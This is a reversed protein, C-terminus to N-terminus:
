VLRGLPVNVYHTGALTLGPLSKFWAALASAVVVVVLAPSLLKLKALPTYKWGYLLALSLAAILTAGTHMQSAIDGLGGTAGFAVPIQKWIITIGIAALMGKIVASPVLAAFRGMRLLGFGFQLAGAIMVAALFPALGGLHEVEVLVISTLGAAPGTVSLPSRSIFPVVLGGVIGAVLGSVPPVGCAVAIGLCLPVAVLFVVLGAVADEKPHGFMSPHHHM